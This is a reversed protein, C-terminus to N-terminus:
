AFVEALAEPKNDSENYLYEALKVEWDERTGDSDIKALFDDVEDDDMEGPTIEDELYEAKAAAKILDMFGPDDNRSDAGEGLKMLSELDVNSDKLDQVEQADICDDALIDAIHEDGLHSPYKAM